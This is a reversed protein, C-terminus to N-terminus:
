FRFGAMMSVARPWVREKDDEVAIHRLGQSYRAEVQWHRGQIGVAATAGWATAVVRDTIVEKQDGTSLSASLRHSLTPGILLYLSKTPSGPATFKVQLPVELYRVALRREDNRDDAGSDDPLVAAKTALAVDFQLGIRESFRLGVFAAAEPRVSLGGSDNRKESLVAVNTLSTLSLGLKAGIEVRRPAQAPIARESQAANQAGAVSPVLTLAAVTTICRLVRWVVSGTVM